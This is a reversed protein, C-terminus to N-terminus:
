RPTEELTKMEMLATLRRWDLMALPTEGYILVRRPSTRLLIQRPTRRRYAGSAQMAYAPWMLEALALVAARVGWAKAVKSSSAQMIAPL